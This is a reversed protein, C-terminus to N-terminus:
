LFRVTFWFITRTNLTIKFVRDVEETNTRVQFMVDACGVNYIGDGLLPLFKSSTSVQSPLPKFKNYSYVTGM